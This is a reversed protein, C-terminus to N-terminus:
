KILHKQTNYIFFGVSFDNRNAKLLSYPFEKTLQTLDNSQYFCNLSNPFVKKLHNYEGFFRSYQKILHKM